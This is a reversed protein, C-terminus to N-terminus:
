KLTDHAFSLIKKNLSFNEQRKKLNSYMNLLAWLKLEEKEKKQKKKKKKKKKEINTNILIDTQHYNFNRDCTKYLYLRFKSVKNVSSIKSKKIKKIEM